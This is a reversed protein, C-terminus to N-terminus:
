TMWLLVRLKLKLYAREQATQGRQVSANTSTARGNEEVWRQPEHVKCKSQLLTFTTSIASSYLVCRMVACISDPRPTQQCNGSRAAVHM